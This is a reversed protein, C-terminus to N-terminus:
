TTQGMASLLTINSRAHVLYSFFTYFSIYVCTLYVGLLRIIVRSGSYFGKKSDLRRMKIATVSALILWVTIPTQAVVHVMIM